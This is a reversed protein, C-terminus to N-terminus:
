APPPNSATGTAPSRRQHLHNMAQELEGDLIAPLQEMAREMAQGIREEEQPGPRGLVYSVVQERQSPRGIGLRLRVFDSSGLHERVAELGRHGACGGGQRLQLKGPELDLEDHLVLIQRPPIRFYRACAAVPQGNNNMATLPQLLRVVTGSRRLACLDVQRRLDPHFSVRERVAIRRLLIAGANHRTAAYEPGPNGLGAVLLLPVSGAGIM